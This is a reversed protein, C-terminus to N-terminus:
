FEFTSFSSVPLIVAFTDLELVFTSTSGIAQVRLGISILQPSLGHGLDSVFM